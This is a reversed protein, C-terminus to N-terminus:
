TYLINIALLAYHTWSFGFINKAESTTPTIVFFVWEALIIVLIIPDTYRSRFCPTHAAM